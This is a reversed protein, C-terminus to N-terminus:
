FKGSRSEFHTPKGLVPRDHRIWDAVQPLMEAVSTSPSGYKQHGLAGDSLLADAAEEGTFRVPRGMLTALEECLDRIRLLEMGAVNLKYAPHAADGMACITMANADGQWIVNVYGMSVDVPTEAWVQQALDVLVGYRLETAYNLRILSVPIQDRASFYEFMRERGLCSMAYEGVPRPVDDERSAPGSAPVLGYVNGTSFATIRSGRFKRCVMAPLHVNMAWTLPENGTAGFKMGAMYVVHPADPLSNLFREDLLDGRVTEIGWGQLRSEAARDSFRSVAIVRRSVGAAQSGRVIMRALTPGMKGGAGLVIVDGKLHRLTEIVAPPPESLREELEDVDAFM